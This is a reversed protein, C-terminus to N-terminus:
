DKNRNPSGIVATTITVVCLLHIILCTLRRWKLFTNSNYRKRRELELLFLCCFFELLNKKKLEFQFVMHSPSDNCYWISLKQEINITIQNWVQPPSGSINLDTEFGKGQHIEKSSFTSVLFVGRDRQGLPIRGVVWGLPFFHWFHAIKKGWQIFNDGRHFLCLNLMGWEYCLFDM